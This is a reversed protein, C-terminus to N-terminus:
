HVPVICTYARQWLPSCSMLGRKGDSDASHASLRNNHLMQRLEETDGTACASRVLESADGPRAAARAADAIAFHGDAGAAHQVQAAVDHDHPKENQDAMIPATDSTSSTPPLPQALDLRIALLSNEAAFCPLMGFDHLAM